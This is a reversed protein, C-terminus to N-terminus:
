RADMHHSNFYDKYIDLTKLFSVSCLYELIHMYNSKSFRIEYNEVSMAQTSSKDLKLM